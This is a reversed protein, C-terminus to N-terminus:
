HKTHNGPVHATMKVKFVSHKVTFLEELGSLWRFLKEVFHHMM